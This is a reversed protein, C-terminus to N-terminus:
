RRAVIRWAAGDYFRLKMVVLRRSFFLDLHGEEWWLGLRRAVGTLADFSGRM